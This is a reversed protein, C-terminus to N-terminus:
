CKIRWIVGPLPAATFFLCSKPRDSEALAAQVAMYGAFAGCAVAVAPAGRSFAVCMSGAQAYDRVRSTESRNLKMGWAPGHWKWTPDAVVPYTTSETPVVVQVLEAGRIEYSTAVAVGQADVAWPAAVTVFNGADDVFVAEGTSSRYPLYGEVSYGFEHASEPSAIVAQMRTSGDALNQIALAEGSGDVASYVVTGDETVSGGSVAFEDPLPIVAASGSEGGTNLILDGEPDLPVLTEVESVTSVVYEELVEGPPALAVPPAVAEITDVVAEATVAADDGQATTRYREDANAAAPTLSLGLLVGTVVLM